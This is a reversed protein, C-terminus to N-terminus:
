GSTDERKNIIKCQIGHKRKWIAKKYKKKKM